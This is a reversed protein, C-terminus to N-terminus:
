AAQLFLEINIPEYIKTSLQWGKKSIQLCSEPDRGTNGRQEKRTCRFANGLDNVSVFLLCNGRVPSPSAAAGPFRRNPWNGERFETLLEEATWNCSTILFFGRVGLARSLSAVYQRRKEAAGDPHLSIADFTGKDVCVHFGSLEPPLKLFDEVQLLFWRRPSFWWWRRTEM